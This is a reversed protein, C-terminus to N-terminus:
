GRKREGQRPISFQFSSPPRHSSSTWADRVSPGPAPPTVSSNLCPNLQGRQRDTSRSRGASAASPRSRRCKVAVKRCKVAVKRCKVAVKRCKVAVKRCKAAVQPVQGRGQPVQGRGATSSRSRAASSRSRAASSRSRAASSRSRAASSRSHRVTSLSRRDTSQDRIRGASSAGRFAGAGSAGVSPLRHCAARRWRLHRLAVRPWRNRALSFGAGTPASSAHFSRSAGSEEWRQCRASCWALYDRARM